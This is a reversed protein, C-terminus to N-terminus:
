ILLIISEIDSALILKGQVYMSSSSSLLEDNVISIPMECVVVSSMTTFESISILALSLSLPDILALMNSALAALECSRDFSTDNIAMLVMKVSSDVIFEVSGPLTVDIMVGDSSMAGAAGDVVGIGTACTVSSAGDLAVIASSTLLTVVADVV